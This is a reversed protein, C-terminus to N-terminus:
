GMAPRLAEAILAFRIFAALMVDRNHYRSVLREAWAEKTRKRGNM